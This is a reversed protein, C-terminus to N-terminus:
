PSLGPGRDFEVSSAFARDPGPAVVHYLPSGSTVRAGMDYTFARKAEHRLWYGVRAPGRADYCSHFHRYQEAPEPRTARWSEPLHPDFLPRIRDADEGDLSVEAEPLEVLVADGEYLLANRPADSAYFGRENFCLLRLRGLDGPDMPKFYYGIFPGFGYWRGGHLVHLRQVYGHPVELRVEGPDQRACAGCLALVLWVLATEARRRM